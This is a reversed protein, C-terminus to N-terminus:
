LFPQLCDLFFTILLSLGVGSVRADTTVNFTGTARPVTWTVKINADAVDAGLYSTIKLLAKVTTNPMQQTSLTKTNQAPLNSADLGASSVVCM